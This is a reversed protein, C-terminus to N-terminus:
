ANMTNHIPVKKYNLAFRAVFAMACWRGYDYPMGMTFNQIFTTGRDLKFFGEWQTQDLAFNENAFKRLSGKENIGLVIDNIKASKTGSMRSYVFVMVAAEGWLEPNSPDESLAKTLELPTVV